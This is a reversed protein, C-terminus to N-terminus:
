LSSTEKKRTNNQWYNEVARSFNFYHFLILCDVAAVQRSSRYACLACPPSGPVAVLTGSPQLGFKSSREHM